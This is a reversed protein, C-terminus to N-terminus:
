RFILNLALILLTIGSEFITTIMEKRNKETLKSEIHPTVVRRIQDIRGDIAEFELAKEFIHNSLNLYTSKKKTNDNLRSSIRGLLNYLQTSLPTSDGTEVDCDSSFVIEQGRKLSDDEQDLLRLRVVHFGSSSPNHLAHIRFYRMSKEKEFVGHVWGKVYRKKDSQTTSDYLVTWKEADESCLLRFAYMHCKTDSQKCLSDECDFFKIAVQKVKCINELDVTINAPHHIGLYGGTVSDYPLNDGPRTMDKPHNCFEMVPKELAFDIYDAMLTDQETM